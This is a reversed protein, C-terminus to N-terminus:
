WKYANIDRWIWDLVLYSELNKSFDLDPATMEKAYPVSKTEEIAETTKNLMEAQVKNINIPM